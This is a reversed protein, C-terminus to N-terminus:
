KAPAPPTNADQAQQHAQVIAALGEETANLIATGHDSHVFVPGVIKGATLLGVLIEEFISM